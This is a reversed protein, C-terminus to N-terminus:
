GHSDAEPEEGRYACGPEIRDLRQPVFLEAAAPMMAGADLSVVRSAACLEFGQAISMPQTITM